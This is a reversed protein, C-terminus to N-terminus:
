KKEERKENNEINKAKGKTEIKNISLTYCTISLSM